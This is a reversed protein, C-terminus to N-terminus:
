KAFTDSDIFFNNELTNETIKVTYELFDGAKIQAKVHFNSIPKVGIKVIYLNIYNKSFKYYIM